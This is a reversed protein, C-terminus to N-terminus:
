WAGALSCGGDFTLQLAYGQPGAPYRFTITFLTSAGAPLTKRADTRFEFSAGASFDGEWLVSEGLAVREPVGNATPFDALSMDILERAQAGQNDLLWSAQNANVQLPFLTLDPCAASRIPTPAPTAELANAPEVGSGLVIPTFAQTPPLASTAEPAIPAAQSPGLARFLLFGGGALVPVLLALWGLKRGAPRAPAAAPVDPASPRRSAQAIYQTPAAAIREFDPLPKGALAAQYAENMEAVSAFRREPKKALCKLIVIELDPALDPKFRRPRPIPEQIHAMVTAMPSDFEFPLKGIALEYLIVGLSYQDSRADITEGRGQEPSVYAPTGMLMSGTLSSHDEIARALGFDTLLAQGDSRLMINSPKIDRHVVGHQHAYHLADAIQGIWRGCEESSLPARTMRRFLTEGDIFPMVTYVFGGSEGYALVPVINPHKLESVLQAERRFRKIFRRDGSITPSLVKVAVQAGSREDVARYVTAMGGQGIQSKIQFHELRTGILSTM